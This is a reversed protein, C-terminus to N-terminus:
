GETFVSSDRKRRKVTDFEIGRSINAVYQPSQPASFTVRIRILRIIKQKTDTTTSMPMCYRIGLDGATGNQPWERAM